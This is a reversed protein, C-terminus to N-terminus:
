SSTQMHEHARKKQQYLENEKGSNNLGKDFM